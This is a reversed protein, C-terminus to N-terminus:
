IPRSSRYWPQVRSVTLSPQRECLAAALVEAINSKANGHGVQVAHVPRRRHCLGVNAADVFIRRRFFFFPFVYCLCVGRALPSICYLSTLRKSCRGQLRRVVRLPLPSFVLSRFSRKTNFADVPSLLLMQRDQGPIGRFSRKVNRKLYWLRCHPYPIACAGHPCPFVNSATRDVVFTVVKGGLLKDTNPRHLEGSGRISGSVPVGYQASGDFSPM